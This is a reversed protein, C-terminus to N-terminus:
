SKIVNHKTIGSYMSYAELLLNVRMPKRYHTYILKRKTLNKLITLDLFNVAVKSCHKTFRLFDTSGRWINLFTQLNQTVVREYLSYITM